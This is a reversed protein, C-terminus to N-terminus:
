RRLQQLTHTLRETRRQVNDHIKNAPKEVFSRWIQVHRNVWIEGVDLAASVKDSVLKTRDRARGALDIAALARM